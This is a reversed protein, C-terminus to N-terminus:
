CDTTMTSFDLFYKNPPRTRIGFRSLVRSAFAASSLCLYDIYRAKGLLFLSYASRWGGTRSFGGGCRDYVVDGCCSIARRKGTKRRARSWASYHALRSTMYSARKRPRRCPGKDVSSAFQIQMIEVKFGWQWQPLLAPEKNIGLGRENRRSALCTILVRKPTKTQFVGVNVQRRM